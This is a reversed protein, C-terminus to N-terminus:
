SRKYKTVNTTEPYGTHMLFTLQTMISLYCDNKAYTFAFMICTLLVINM